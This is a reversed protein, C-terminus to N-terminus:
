CRELEKRLKNLCDIAKDVDETWNKREFRWIYKFACGRWYAADPLLKSGDNMSQMARQCSVVGDGRYHKPMDEIGQERRTFNKSLWAAFAESNLALQEFVDGGCGELEDVM